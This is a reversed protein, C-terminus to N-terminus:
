EYLGALAIGVPTIDSPPANANSDINFAALEVPGLFAVIVRAFTPYKAGVKFNRFTLVRSGTLVDLNKEITKGFGNIEIEIKLVPDHIPGVASIRWAAVSDISRGQIGHGPIALLRLNEEGM